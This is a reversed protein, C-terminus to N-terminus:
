YIVKRQLVKGLLPRIHTLFSVCKTHLLFSTSLLTVASLMWILQFIQIEDSNKPYLKKTTLCHHCHLWHLWLIFLTQEWAYRDILGTAKIKALKIQHHNDPLWLTLYFVYLKCGRWSNLSFWHMEQRLWKLFGLSMDSRCGM